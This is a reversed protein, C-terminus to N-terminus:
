ITDKKKRLDYKNKNSQKASEEGGLILVNSTLNAICMAKNNKM